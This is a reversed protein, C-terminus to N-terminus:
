THAIEWGKRYKRTLFGSLDGNPGTLKMPEPQWHLHQGKQRVAANGLLVAETLAEEVGPRCQNM